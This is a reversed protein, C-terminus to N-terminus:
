RRVNNAIANVLDVPTKATADKACFYVDIVVNSRSTIAKACTQGEGGELASVVTTTDGVTKPFGITYYNTQPQPPPVTDSFHLDACRDFDLSTRVVFRTASVADPFSVVGEDVEHAPRDGPEGVKHGAAGTYGSGNYSPWETNFLAEACRPESYTEGVPPPIDQYPHFSVMGAVGVIESVQQDSLLLTALDAPAVKPASADRPTQVRATGAVATSCAVVCGGCLALLVATRAVGIGSEM